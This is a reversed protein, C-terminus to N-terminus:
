KGSLLWDLGLSVGPVYSVILLAVMLAGLFPLIATFIKHVPTKTVTSTVFALMGVPPTLGGLMLNVVIMLGIHVPDYGLGVLLPLVLPTLILIGAGIDLIMGFVLLLLNVILLVLIPDSSIVLIASTIDQPVQQSVLVFAFPAASGILLGILAAEVASERITQWLQVLNYNRYVAIGLILSYAVALVGAETPTVIGLRIGGLIIVALILVPLASIFATLRESARARIGREDLGRARVVIFVMVMLCICMLIGPGVGALWLDGVSLNSVAALILLAISPPIINPLVASSATIACALDAPYGRRVMQPVLLKSGLAAESYSSGSIGGYLFSSFVNVQGLGGRMHGVLKHAFDILYATLGGRNMLAGATIFFPIALLLFKSSGNVVNQVIAAPPLFGGVMTSVFVSLLMAFAVPMGIVLGVGFVVAMAAASNFQPLAIWAQDNLVFYLLGAAAVELLGRWRAEGTELGSLAIYLLTVGAAIPILIFKFWGPVGLAVNTGGIASILVDTGFILLIMTYAVLIKALVQAILRLRAPLRDVMLTISLHLGSREALPIGLFIVYIFMWQALEAAWTLSYNFIYRAGVNCLIILILGALLLGALNSIVVDLGRLLRAWNNAPPGKGQALPGQVEALAAAADNATVDPTSTM